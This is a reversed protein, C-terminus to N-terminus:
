RPRIEELLGACAPELIEYMREFGDLGGYYPDRVDVGDAAPDFERMLRLRARRGQGARARLERLHGRDMAIILDFRDFDRDVVPRSISDVDLGHRAGTQRTRPDAREGEHFGHTGASDIEFATELGEERAMLRFLAEAMPSRCINGSCVFLVRQPAAQPAIM